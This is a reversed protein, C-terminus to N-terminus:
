RLILRETTVQGASSFQVIYIGRKIDKCDLSGEGPRLWQSKVINGQLSRIELLGPSENVSFYLKDSAPNPYINLGTGISKPDVTLTKSYVYSLDNDVQKLRVYKNGTSPRDIWFNYATVTNGGRGDVRGETSWNQTDTSSQIEFHSFNEENSSIWILETKNAEPRQEFSILDLPMSTQAADISGVTMVSGDAIVSPDIDYYLETGGNSTFTAVTAGSSFDGDADFLLRLDSAVGSHIFNAYDIIFRVGNSPTNHTIKWKRGLLVEVSPNGGDTIPTPLTTGNLAGNDNSVFIHDGDSLPSGSQVELRIVDRYALSAVGYGNVSAAKTVNLGSGDDKVVGIIDYNYGAHDNKSYIVNGASNVYNEATGNIGKTIGYKMCLYSTIRNGDPNSLDVNYSIIEAVKTQGFFSPSTTGNSGLTMANNPATAGNVATFIDDAVAGNLECNPVSGVETMRIAVENVVDSNSAYIPSLNFRNQWKSTGGNIVTMGIRDGKIDIDLTTSNGYSLQPKNDEAKTVIFIAGGTPLVIGGASADYLWQNVGNFNLYNNYNFLRDSSGSTFTPENGSSPQELNVSSDTSQWQSVQNSSNYTVNVDPKFWSSLGTSIGGPAQSFATSVAFLLTGALLNRFKM